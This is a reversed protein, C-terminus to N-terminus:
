RMPECTAWADQMRDYYRCEQIPYEKKDTFRSYTGSLYVYVRRKNADVDDLLGKNSGGDTELKVLAPNGKSLNMSFVTDNKCAPFKKLQSHTIQIWTCGHLNVAPIDSTNELIIAVQVAMGQNFNEFRVDSISIFPRNSIDSIKLTKSAIDAQKIGAETSVKLLSDRFHESIANLRDQDADRRKTYAFISDTQISQNGMITAQRGIIKTQQILAVAQIIVAVAVLADLCPKVKEWMNSNKNSPKSHSDNESRGRGNESHKDSV